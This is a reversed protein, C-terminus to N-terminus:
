NDLYQMDEHSLSDPDGYLIEHVAHYSYRVPRIKWHFDSTESIASEFVAQEDPRFVLHFMNLCDFEVSESNALAEDIQERLKENGQKARFLWLATLMM